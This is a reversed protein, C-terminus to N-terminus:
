AVAKLQRTGESTADVPVDGAVDVMAVFSELALV